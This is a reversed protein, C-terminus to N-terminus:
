ANRTSASAVRALVARVHGDADVAEMLESYGGHKELRKRVGRGQGLGVEFALWGGPRLYRPADQILRELIRIGLPGGDLALRPEHGIIEGPLGDIRGSSICPPNCVVLDARGRLESTDFPGLLDGAFFAVRGALGVHRANRTALAIADTSLDAGWVRARPEYWALALALNGSGTCADLVGLLETDKRPILADPSALLELGMFQQRGTLHALPEGELRRQVLARLKREGEPPMPQLRTTSARQASLSVGAAAHWLAALTASVTEEPKDSLNRPGSVLLRECERYLAEAGAPLCPPAARHIV